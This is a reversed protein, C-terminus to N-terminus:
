AMACVNSQVASATIKADMSKDFYSTCALIPIGGMSLIVM